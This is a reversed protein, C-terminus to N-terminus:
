VSNRPFPSSSISLVFTLHSSTPFLFSSHPLFWNEDARAGTYCIPRSVRSLACSPAFAWVCVCVCVRDCRRFRVTHACSSGAASFSIFLGTVVRLTPSTSHSPLSEQFAFGNVTTRGFMESAVLALCFLKRKYKTGTNCIYPSFECGIIFIWRKRTQLGQLM